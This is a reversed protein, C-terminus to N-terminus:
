CWCKKGHHRYDRGTVNGTVNGTFTSASIESGFTVTSVGADAEINNVIIKSTM